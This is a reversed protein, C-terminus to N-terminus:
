PALAAITAELERRFRDMVAPATGRTEVVLGQLAKAQAGLRTAGCFGCASRLRHLRDVLSAPDHELEHLENRLQVLEIRLLDRLAGLVNADGSAVLGDEDSLVAMRPDVGLAADLAQGLSAIKCPKEIAGTFGAAELDSRLLPSIEASTAFAPVGASAADISDLLDRWVEMAGGHPMRCDLILADFRTARAQRLADAGDVALAVNYGLSVLAGSLFQRTSPDDDAVLVKRLHDRDLPPPRNSEM